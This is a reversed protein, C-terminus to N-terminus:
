RKKCITGAIENIYLGDVGPVAIKKIEQFVEKHVPAIDRLIQIEKKTLM